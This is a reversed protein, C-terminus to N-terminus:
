LGIKRIEGSTPFWGSYSSTGKRYGTACDKAWPLLHRTLMAEEGRGHMEAIEQAVHSREKKPKHVGGEFSPPPEDKRRKNKKAM